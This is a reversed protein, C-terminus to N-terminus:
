FVFGLGVSLWPYGAEVRLMLASMLRLMIGVGGIPFASVWSGRLGSWYGFGFNLAAGLKFLGAFQPTFHLAWSVTVPLSLWSSFGGGGAFAVNAGAELNFSDNLEPVFGMPVIPHFYSVGIGFPFGVAGWGYYHYPFGVWVTLLKPRQQASRDTLGGPGRVDDAAGHAPAGNAAVCTALALLIATRRM